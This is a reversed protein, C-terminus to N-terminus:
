RRTTGLLPGFINKKPKVKPRQSPTPAPQTGDSTRAERIRLVPKSQIEEAEGRLLRDYSDRANESEIVLDGSDYSDFLQKLDKRDFLIKINQGPRVTQEWDDVRVPQFKYEFM